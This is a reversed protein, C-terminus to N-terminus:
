DAHSAERPLSMASINARIEECFGSSAAEIAQKVAGRIARADSSGHAKIVPKNLGVLVSGGTERYDMMKKIEKVGPKCLLYGLKSFLNRKFMKKMMGSMFIATGEISKLLVNGSFGDAVIVDAEGLLVNRGEINGAFHILGNEDAKKLLVYAKEGLRGKPLAVNLWNM